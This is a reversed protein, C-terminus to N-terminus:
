ANGPDIAPRVVPCFELEVTGVGYADVYISVDHKILGPEPAPWNLLLRVFEAIGDRLDKEGSDKSMSSAIPLAIAAGPVLYAYWPFSVDVSVQLDNPVVETKHVIAASDPVDVVALGFSGVVDVDPDPFYDVRSALALQFHIRDKQIQVVPKSQVYSVPGFLSTQTPVLRFYLKDSQQIRGTLAGVLLEDVVSSGRRVCNASDLDLAASGLDRSDTGTLALLRFDTSRVQQVVRSGSPPVAIGNLRLTVGAPVRAKWSITAQEFPRVIKPSVSLAELAVDNLSRRDEGTVRGDADPTPAVSNAAVRRPASGGM